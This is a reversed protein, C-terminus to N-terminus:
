HIALLHHKLKQPFKAICGNYRQLKSGFRNQTNWIIKRQYSFNLQFLNLLRISCSFSSWINYLKLMRVIVWNLICICIFSCRAICHMSVNYVLSVLSLFSFYVIKFTPRTDNQITPLSFNSSRTFSLKFLTMLGASTTSCRLKRGCFRMSQWGWAEGILAHAM